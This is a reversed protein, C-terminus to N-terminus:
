AKGERYARLLILKYRFLKYKTVDYRINSIVLLKDITFSSISSQGNPLTLAIGLRAWAGIEYRERSKLVMKKEQEFYAWITSRFSYIKGLNFTIIWQQLSHYKQELLAFFIWCFPRNIQM